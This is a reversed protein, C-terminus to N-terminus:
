IFDINFILTWNDVLFANSVHFKLTKEVVSNRQYNTHREKEVFVIKM